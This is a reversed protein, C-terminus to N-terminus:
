KKALPVPPAKRLPIRIMLYYNFGWSTEKDTKGFGPVDHPLMEDTGETNLAFKFRGTYGIWFIKWIKVRLGTTLELWWADVDAHYFNDNLQGWIPDYRSVSMSETFVSKGYRAGLFFVNRDPDKTLFNVDVGARWFRGQNSYAASDSHFDRGWNGYDIALFYRSFDVEGNVEWGQFNGQTSSKVLSIVDTGIRVGTPLYKSQITDTKLTDAAKTQALAGGIVPLFIFFLLIRMQFSFVMM